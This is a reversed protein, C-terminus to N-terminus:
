EGSGHRRGCRTCTWRTQHKPVHAVTGCECTRPTDTLAELSDTGELVQAQAAAPSVGHRDILERARARQEPTLIPPAM